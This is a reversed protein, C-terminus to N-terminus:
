YINITFRMNKTLSIDKDKAERKKKGVKINKASKSSRDRYNHGNLVLAVMKEKIKHMEVEKDNIYDM